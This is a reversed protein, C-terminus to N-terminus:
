ATGSSNIAPGSIPTNLPGSTDAITTVAGGAGTFVGSGGADLTAQFAVVGSDNINTFGTFTSYPGTSEAIPSPTGGATGAYVGVNPNIAPNALTSLPGANDAILTYTYAAFAPATTAAIAAFAVFFAARFAGPGSRSKM